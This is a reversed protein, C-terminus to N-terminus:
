GRRGLHTVASGRALEWRAPSLAASGGGGDSPESSCCPAPPGLHAQQRTTLKAPPSDGRDSETAKRASSMQGRKLQGFASSKQIIELGFRRSRCGSTSRDGVNGLALEFDAHGFWSDRAARSRDEVAGPLKDHLGLLSPTM